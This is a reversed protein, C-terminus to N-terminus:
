YSSNSYLKIQIIAAVLEILHGTCFYMGVFVAATAIHWASAAAPFLDTYFEFSVLLLLVDAGKVEGEIM